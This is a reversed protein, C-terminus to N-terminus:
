QCGCTASCDTLALAACIDDWEVLCCFDSGDAACVCASCEALECGGGLHAACCGQQESPAITPTPPPPQDLDLCWGLLEGVDEPAHDVVDLRWSGALSEGDFASLMELPRFTGEIAPAMVACQNQVPGFGEDDLTCSIDPNPCFSPPIGARNLLGASTGTGIHTLRVELDGVWTHNIELRVNLDNITRMADIALTSSLGTPNNDPIAVPEPLVKCFSDPAGTFTATATSTATPTPTTSATPSPSPTISPTATSTAAPTSTATRTVTPSPEATPTSTPAILPTPTATAIPGETDTPTATLSSDETATATSFEVPTDTPELTPTDVPTDTPTDVPTDTPTEAPTDTPTDVATETLTATPTPTPLLEACILLAPDLCTPYNEDVIGDLDRDLGVSGGALYSVRFKGTPATVEILGSAPCPEGLSQELAMQTALDVRGGFCESIIGGDLRAQPPMTTEDRSVVFADFELALDAKPDGSSALYHLGAPGDFALAYRQPVCGNGFMTVAAVVGVDNLDLTITALNPYETALTGSLQLTAGTLFCSGGLQPTAKGSVAAHAKQKLQSQADFFDAKVDATLDLPPLIISPCNGTGSLEAVGNLIVSGTATPLTCGNLEVRQKVTIFGSCTRTATGGLPCAGAGGGGLEAAGGSGLQVGSIIATLVSTLSDLSQALVVTNGAISEAGMGPIPTSTAPAPVTQTPTAAPPLTATATSPPQTETPSPGPETPEPTPAPPEAFRGSCAFIQAPMAAFDAADVEGNGDIDALGSIPAGALMQSVAGLDAVTVRGDENADGRLGGGGAECSQAAAESAGGLLVALAAVAAIM